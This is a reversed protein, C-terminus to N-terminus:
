VGGGNSTHAMGMPHIRWGWQIYVGDGKSTHTVEMPHIHWGTSHIRWERQIYAGGVNFTHAVGM